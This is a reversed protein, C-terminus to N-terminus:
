TSLYDDKLKKYVLKFCKISKKIDQKKYKNNTIECIM